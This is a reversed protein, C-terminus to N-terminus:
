LKSNSDLCKQANGEKLSINSEAMGKAIAGDAFQNPPLDGRMGRWYGQGSIVKILRAMAEVTVKTFITLAIIIYFLDSGTVSPATPPVIPVTLESSAPESYVPTVTQNTQLM